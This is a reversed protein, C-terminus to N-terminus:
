DNKTEKMFLASITKSDVIKGTKILNKIEDYTYELLEIEEDDDFNTRTKTLNKAYFVYIKEDCFGPSTYIFGLDEWYDATYGTEEELERKACILPNEREGNEKLDLKGAPLELLYENVAFRPQREVLIKGNDKEAIIISAGGHNIVERITKSGNDLLVNAVKLNVVKGNYIKEESLTKEM